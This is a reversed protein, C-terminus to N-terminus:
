DFGVGLAIRAPDTKHGVDMAAFAALGHFERDVRELRDPVAARHVGVALGAVAGPQTGADGLAKEAGQHRSGAVMDAFLSPDAHAHDEQRAGVEGGLLAAPGDHLGLDQAGPQREIAPALHGDVGRAQAFLGGGGSRGDLLDQEGVGLAPVGVRKLPHEVDHAAPDFGLRAAFRRQFGAMATAAAQEPTPSWLVPNM